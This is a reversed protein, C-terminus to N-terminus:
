FLKISLSSLILKVEEVKDGQIEIIGEKVSGGVGLKRKIVTSLDQLEKPSKNLNLVVTILSNGRKLSRVKVLKSSIKNEPKNNEEPKEPAIWDGGLTFPM